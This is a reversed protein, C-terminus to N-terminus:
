MQRRSMPLTKVTNEIASVLGRASDNRLRHEVLRPHPASAGDRLRRDATKQNRQARERLGGFFARDASAAFQHREFTHPVLGLNDTIGSGDCAHDAVLEDIGFPISFDAISPLEQRIERVRLKLGADHADLVHFHLHVGSRRYYRANIMRFAGVAGLRILMEPAKGIGPNKLIALPLAHGTM